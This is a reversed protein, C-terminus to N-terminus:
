YYLFKNVHKYYKETEQFNYANVIENIDVDLIKNLYNANEALAM